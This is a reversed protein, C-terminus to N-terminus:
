PTSTAKSTKKETPTPTDTAIPTPKSVKIKPNTPLSPFIIVRSGVIISTDKKDPYGVVIIRDGVNLKSFGYKVLNNDKDTTLLKTSTQDDIKIQKQDVTTITIFYNKNDLDSISGSLFTPDVTTNIFRALIRQSQKNYLGLITLRTGKTIDSLGFSSNSASSFKTIEDVDVYRTNGAIDTLTIKNGSVDTAVGIMGRKEVLNLESVRSAIKEKLQNIQNSVKESITPNTTPTTAAYAPIAAFFSGIILSAILIKKM